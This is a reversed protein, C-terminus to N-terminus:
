FTVPMVGEAKKRAGFCEVVHAAFSGCLMKVWVSWFLLIPRSAYM